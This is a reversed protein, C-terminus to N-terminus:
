AKGITDAGHQEAEMATLVERSDRRRTTAVIQHRELLEAVRGCVSQLRMGLADAIEQRTAGYVDRSVVFRRVTERMNPARPTIRVAAAESTTSGPAAPPVRYRKRPQAWLPLDAVTM